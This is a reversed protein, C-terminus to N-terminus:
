PGTPGQLQMEGGGPGNIILFPISVYIAAGRCSMKCKFGRSGQCRRTNKEAPM